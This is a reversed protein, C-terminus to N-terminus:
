RESSADLTWGDPLKPAFLVAPCDKRPVLPALDFRNVNGEGDRWEVRTVRKGDASLTVAGWALDDTPNEPTAELRPEGEATTAALRFGAPVRGLVLDFLPMRAREEAAIRRRTLTSTAPDAASVTEGDLAFLRGKPEDYEFRIRGPPSLVIRGAQGRGTGFGAPIYTQTFAAARCGDGGVAKRIQALRTEVAPPAALATTGLLLLSAALLLRNRTM